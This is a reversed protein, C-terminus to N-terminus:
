HTDFVAQFEAVKAQVAKREEATPNCPDAAPPMGGFKMICAMLLLRGKTATLNSGAITLAGPRSNTFGENNGRGVRVVPMGSFVARELALEVPRNVSGGVSGEAVIGALPQDRLHMAIRALVDVETEATLTSDLPHYRTHKVVTVMPIASELIDGAADKIAVPATMIGGEGGKSGLVETPLCTTKVESTYTHKRNPRFTLVAAGHGIGGVIGGHGGTAVYGGPHADGKQVERSTYIWEDLIAVAGVTDSGDEGKWVGSTIYEASDVINHDGDNALAGHPRQSSNGCIPTKTDILLNLWWITEELHPSGELWIAGDY